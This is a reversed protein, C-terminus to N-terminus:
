PKHRQYELYSYLPHLIQLPCTHFHSTTAMTPSFHSTTTLTPPSDLVKCEGVREWPSWSCEMLVILLGHSYKRCDMFVRHPTWSCDRATWPIYDVSEMLVRSMSEM